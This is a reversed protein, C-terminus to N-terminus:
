KRSQEALSIILAEDDKRFRSVGRKLWYIIVTRAVGSAKAAGSPGGLARVAQKFTMGHLIISAFRVTL